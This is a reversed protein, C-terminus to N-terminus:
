RGVYAAQRAKRTSSTFQSDHLFYRRPVDFGNFASGYVVTYAGAMTILLKDGVKLGEPLSINHGLTDYSDCTPGTLTYGISPTKSHLEALHKLSYVPYPFHGFEFVEIFAQFAGIDLYLWPGNQREEVGIIETVIISSDATIFRGPEAIYEVDDQEDAITAQIGQALDAIKADSAGYQVPFGGGLNIVRVIVGMRAAEQRIKHAHQIAKSWIVVDNAQSGIHFTIGLPKLNASKAEALLQAAETVRCGFKSSFSIAGPSDHMKVRVLVEAGPAYKAIKTLEAMSQFAFVNVGCSSAAKIAQASKVPNSYLLRSAKVGLTLLQNIEAMSAVDYGHVLHDIATIVSPDSVCKVAFYLEVNPLYQRFVRCQELIISLDTLMYPTKLRRRTAHDAFEQLETAQLM